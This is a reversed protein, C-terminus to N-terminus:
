DADAVRGENRVVVEDPEPHWQDAKSPSLVLCFENGEPDAMIRSIWGGDDLIAGHQAWRRGGLQEVLATAAELDDVYVDFHLRNKGVKTEPVKQLALVMSGALNPSPGLSVVHGDDRDHVVKVGLLACWFPAISYPDQTDMIVYARLGAAPGPLADPAEM